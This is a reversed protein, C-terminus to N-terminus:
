WYLCKQLLPQEKHTIPYINIRISIALLVFNCKDMKTYIYVNTQTKINGLWFYFHGNLSPLSEIYFSASCKLTDGHDTAPWGFEPLTDKFQDSWARWPKKRFSFHPRNLKLQSIHGDAFISNV